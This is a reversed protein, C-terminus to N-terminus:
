PLLEALKAELAAGRLNTAVIVGNKDLLFTAPIGNVGYQKAPVCDWFKLDSVQNPWPMNLAKIGNVWADKTKDLSVSYVTFGKNKYKNYATIVNPMEARCPGCWSAWFDILVVSGRLSSLKVNKGEPTPLDIDPATGGVKVNEAMKQMEEIQKAQKDYENYAKRFELTYSSKPMEKEMRELVSLNEKPYNQMPLNTIYFMAVLPSKASKAGATCTNELRGAIENLQAEIAAITDRSAGNQMYYQYSYKLMNIDRQAENISKFAAQFEDNEESGTIKFAEGQLAIDITVNYKAPELLFLWFTREDLKLRYFGKESVGEMKFNGKDDIASSDVVTVEKLGLKELQISKAPHNKLSGTISYKDSSGILSCSSFLTILFLIASIKRM